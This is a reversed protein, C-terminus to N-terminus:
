LLHNRNAAAPPANLGRPLISMSRMASKVTAAMAMLVPAWAAFHEFEDAEPRPTVFSMAMNMDFLARLSMTVLFPSFPTPLTVVVQSLLATTEVVQMELCFDQLYSKTKGVRFALPHEGDAPTKTRRNNRWRRNVLGIVAM